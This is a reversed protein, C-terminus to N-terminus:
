KGPQEEQTAIGVKTIDARQLADMLSVLKQVPLSRDPRIIVAVNPDTQKLAALRSLTRRVCAQQQDGIAEAHAGRQQHVLHESQAVNLMEFLLFISFFSTVPLGSAVDIRLTAHPALQTHAGQNIVVTEQLRANLFRHALSVCSPIPPKIAILQLANFQPKPLGRPDILDEIPELVMESAIPATALVRMGIM